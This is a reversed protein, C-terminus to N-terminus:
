SVLIRTSLLKHTPLSWTISFITTAKEVWYLENTFPNRLGEQVGEFTHWQPKNAIDTLRSAINAPKGLWVLSRYFETEAGRRIMGAKTILMRGYAIGIGCRFNLDKAHKNMVFQSVSSMLIATNVANSFCNETDFVVMVRDGVINRVHGGFFRAAQIMGSVFASYLRALTQAQKEVSIRASNRIDVHLICSELRKCRKTNQDLNDFTIYSDDFSPVFATEVVEIQFDSSLLTKAEHNIDDLFDELTM